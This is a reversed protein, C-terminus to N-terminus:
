VVGWSAEQDRNTKRQRAPWPWTELDVQVSCAPVRMNDNHVVSLKDEQGPIFL